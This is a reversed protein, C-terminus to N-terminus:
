NLLSLLTERVEGAIYLSGWCLLIDDKQLSEFALKAGESVSSAIEVDNCYKRCVGGFEEASMSRPNDPTVTIIKRCLPAMLKAETEFDKDKLLGCVSVIKGEYVKIYDYLARVKDANHAGDIIITPNKSIVELRAACKVDELGRKVASQPIIFGKKELIKIAYIATIANHIQHEGSMNLTYDEGEFNFTSGTLNLNVNSLSNLKPTFLACNREKCVREIVTMADDKQNPYSVVDSEKIIGCKEFAIQSVTDGLIAIHDLGIRTIVSVLPSPIINTADFRGGMGVELCVVDCNQEKFWLLGLVTNFEFETIIQGDRNMQKVLPILKECLRSFDEKPIIESNIMFRERFDLVYPSTFLGAKYGCQKLISACYSATSGKGSTGAIHIFKLDKEPNGALSVLRYVRELGPKSGFKSLSHIFSLAENYDM